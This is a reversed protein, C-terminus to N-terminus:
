SRSCDKGCERPHGSLGESCRRYFSREREPTASRSSRSARTSSARRAPDPGTNWAASPTQLPLGGNGVLLTTGGRPGEDRACLGPRARIRSSATLSASSPGRRRRQQPGLAGACAAWEALEPLARHCRTCGCRAGHSAEWGPELSERLGEAARSARGGEAVSCACCCRDGAGRATRRDEVVVAGDRCSRSPMVMRRSSRWGSGV